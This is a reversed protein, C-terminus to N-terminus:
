ASAGALSRLKFRQVKGTATKPLSELFEIWRPYKYHAIRRKVFEQLDRRVTEGPEHGPKLVVFAKPKVLNDADVAGIVACELVAPHELLAAEVEIPSVWIGGVKLMDDSRGAYWFYGDEDVTFKDGTFLWEGRFTQATKERKCWYGAAISGGKVMLNGVEGPPVPLGDDDVLRAEYGPVVLGTSGPRVKGPLNSIFIHLAETSGIGDLIELGWTQKWRRHIEPPLAEGASVCCRVSSLDYGAPDLQLMANYSTPVSFFLTPRYKTVTELVLAPEPRQPLLVTAAGAGFPFFLSNGLGYAFFLKAVSFCIDEPQINLVHKGYSEYSAVMDCHLHVTGKPFGTTGSSYLWFAPEERHTEVAELEPAAAGFLASFSLTGPHHEGGVVVIQELHKCQSRISEIVPLFPESVVLVVARSDNLLYLYDQSRLLTNTPIPVAGIKMAGFFTFVFEPCDQLLLMVRNERRVGLTRLLNGTRNVGEQVDRYTLVAGEYYIAPRDGRGQQVHEDVFRTAANFVEPLGAM